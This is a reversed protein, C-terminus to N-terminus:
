KKISLKTEDADQIKLYFQKFADFDEIEIVRNSFYQKKTVEIGDSVPKFTLKYKGFRSEVNVDQPCEILKYGTPIKIHVKQVVPTIGLVRALDIASYRREKKFLTNSLV